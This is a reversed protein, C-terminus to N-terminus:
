IKSFLCDIILALIGGLIAGSLSYLFDIGCPAEGQLLWDYIIEKSAAALITAALGALYASGRKRGLSKRGKQKWLRWIGYIVLCIGAGALLHQQKDLSPDTTISLIIFVAALIWIVIAVKKM